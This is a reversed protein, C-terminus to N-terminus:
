AELTRHVQVVLGSGGAVLHGESCFTHPLQGQQEQHGPSSSIIGLGKRDLELLNREKSRYLSSKKLQKGLDEGQCKLLGLQAPILKREWGALSSPM